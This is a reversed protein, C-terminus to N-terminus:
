RPLHGTAPASSQPSSRKLTPPVISRAVTQAIGPVGENHPGRYTANAHGAYSAASIVAAVIVSSVRLIAAGEMKQPKALGGDAVQVGASAAPPRMAIIGLITASVRQLQTVTDEDQPTAKRGLRVALLVGSALRCLELTTSDTPVAPCAVIFIEHEARVNAVLSNLERTTGPAKVFTGGFSRLEVDDSADGPESGYADECLNLAATRRGAATFARALGYALEVQRDGACASSVVIMASNPLRADLVVRLSQLSSDNNNLM